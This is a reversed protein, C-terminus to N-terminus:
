DYEDQTYVTDYKEVFQDVTPKIRDMLDQFYFITGPKRFGEPMVCLLKLKKNM